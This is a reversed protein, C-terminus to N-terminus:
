SLLILFASISSFIMIANGIAIFYSFYPILCLTFTFNLEPILVGKDCTYTDAYSLSPYWSSLAYTVSADLNALFKTFLQQSDALRGANLPAPATVTGDGSVSWASPASSGSATSNLTDLGSKIGSLLGNSTNQAAIQTAQNAATAVGSSSPVSGTGTPNPINLYSNLSENYTNYNSSTVQGSGNVHATFNSTTPSNVSGSQSSVSIDEGGDGTPTMQYDSPNGYQDVGILSINPAAMSFNSTTSPNAANHVDMSFGTCTFATSGDYCTSGSNRQVATLAGGTSSKATSPYPVLNANTLSCTGNSCNGYGSPTTTTTSVTLCTYGTGICMPGGSCYSSSASYTPQAKSCSAAEAAQADSLNSYTKGNFTTSVSQSATAPPQWLGNNCSWGAPLSQGVCVSASPPIDISNTGDNISMSSLQMGIPLGAQLFILNPDNYGSQIQLPVSTGNVFNMVVNGVTSGFTTAFVPFPLLFIFFFRFM